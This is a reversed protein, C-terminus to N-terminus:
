NGFPVGVASSGIFKDKKPLLNVLTKGELKVDSLYGNGTDGINVFGNDTIVTSNTADEM